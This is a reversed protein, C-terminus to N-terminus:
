TRTRTSRRMPSQCRPRAAITAQLGGGLMRGNSTCVGPAVGCDTTARLTLTVDGFGSPEIRLGWGANNGKQLRWARGITGGSVDFLGNQVTRYSLGAPETSLRFELEFPSTGDHESPMNSFSATLPVESATGTSSTGPVTAEAAQVLPQGGICVANPKRM